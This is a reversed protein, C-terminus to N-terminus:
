QSLKLGKIAPASSPAQIGQTSPVSQLTQVATPARLTPTAGLGPVVAGLAPAKTIASPARFEAPKGTIMPGMKELGRVQGPLAGPTPLGTGLAGLSEGLLAKDIESVGGPAPLEDDDIIGKASVGGPAPLEDDDIIGKASVGGPAPLEDDIIGKATPAPLTDNIIIGQEAGPPLGALLNQVATPDGTSNIIVIGKESGPPLAQGALLREVATPDGTSNIIVIGKESGPPLSGLLSQLATPDVKGNDDIIGGPKTDNIIIGKASVGGPKGGVVIIGKESGPAATQAGSIPDEGNDTDQAAAYGVNFALMTALTTAGFLKTITM